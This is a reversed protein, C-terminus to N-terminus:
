HFHKSFHAGFKALHMVLEALKYFETERLQNQIQRKHHSRAFSYVGEGNLNMRLTLMFM